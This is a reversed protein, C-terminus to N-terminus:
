KALVEIQEPHTVDISPGNVAEVWGRVRLREGEFRKPDFGRGFNKFDRKAIAITFDTKYDPGFNLFARDRSLGVALVRGEVIQFSDTTGQLGGGMGDLTRIRYYSNAWIGRKATRAEAELALMEAILSRNDDFTYVRAYGAALMAGQLWTGEATTLHALIRGHRDERAGGYHLTVPGDGILAALHARAEPALPWTPYNPRGLPLKPGQLGVLRVQRKDGLRVTDADVVEIVPHTEGLTLARPLPLSEAAIASPPIMTMPLIGLSTVLFLALLPAPSPLRKM